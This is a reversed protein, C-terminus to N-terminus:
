HDTGHLIKERLGTDYALGAVSLTPADIMGTAVILGKRALALFVSPNRLGNADSTSVVRAGVHFHNGHPNPLEDITVAGTTEDRRAIDPFKALEQLLTLTKLQLPNLGLPNAKPPM